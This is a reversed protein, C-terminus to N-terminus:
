QNTCSNCHCGPKSCSVGNVKRWRYIVVEAAVFVFVLILFVIPNLFFSSIGLVAAGGLIPLACCLVFAGLIGLGTLWESKKM